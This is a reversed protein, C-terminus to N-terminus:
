RDPAHSVNLLALLEPGILTVDGAGLTIVLDGSQVTERVRRSVASWAPEFVVRESSLPVAKAIWDGTVGPIPDERAAYVEMVVVVDALGLAQAFEKWFKATRTYLHPQFVAVIRGKGAVLRASRLTAALEAPHHAYDDYVRVGAASGQYEFRRRAGFFEAIGASLHAAPFGLGVGATLAAAGNLANHRGPIRVSVQTTASAVPQGQAVLQYSCGGGSLELQQICMDASADEGYTRVDVGRTRASAALRRAGEDDACAVLFGEPHIREAFALFAKDVVDANAYYDSHDLEVNTVIAAYPSLLLFSGDSEDAEAVFLEGAGHHANSTPGDLQAGVAYSPDAGCHRLATALLATTTSKGHAGAVVVPRYGTILSALAAGRPLVRLGRRRAEVLEPNHDRIATSVVVTDADGLQEAAHGAYVTAGLNRLGALVPSDKADSGSVAMGRDLLIRAIGSMGAGGIAIFHVRGLQGAPPIVDPAPVRM